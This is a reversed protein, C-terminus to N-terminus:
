FNTTRSLSVFDETFIATISGNQITRDNQKMDRIGADTEAEQHVVVLGGRCDDVQAPAGGQTGPALRAGATGLGRLPCTRYIRGITEKDKVSNSIFLDYLDAVIKGVTVKIGDEKTHTIKPIFTFQLTAVCVDDEQLICSTRLAANRQITIFTIKEGIDM